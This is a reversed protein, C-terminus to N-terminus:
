LFWRYPTSTKFLLLLLLDHLVQVLGVARLQRQHALQLGLDRHGGPALVAVPQLGVEVLRAPVGLAELAAQALQPLAVVRQLDSQAGDLATIPWAKASVLVGSSRTRPLPPSSFTSLFALSEHAASACSIAM